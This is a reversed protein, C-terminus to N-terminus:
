ISGKFEPPAPTFVFKHVVLDIKERHLIKLGTEANQATHVTFGEESLHLELVRLMKPEDEVILLTPM